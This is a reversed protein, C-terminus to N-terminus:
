AIRLSHCQRQEYGLCGSAHRQQHQTVDSRKKDALNLDVRSENTGRARFTATGTEGSSVWASSISADLTVDSVSTGNTLASISQAALSLAQADSTSQNQGFLFVPTVAFIGVLLGAFSSRSM